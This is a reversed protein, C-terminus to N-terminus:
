ERLTHPAPPSHHAAPQRAQQRMGASTLPGAQELRGLRDIGLWRHLLRRGAAHHRGALRHRSLSLVYLSGSFLFIGIHILRGGTRMAPIEGLRSAAFAILMLAIAHYMQYRVGTEFVDLMNSTLREKLSHAGFAGLAVSILAHVAGYAFYRPFM